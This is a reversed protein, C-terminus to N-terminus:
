LKGKQGHKAKQRPTWNYYIKYFIIASSVSKDQIETRFVDSSVHIEIGFVDSRERKKKKKKKPSYM